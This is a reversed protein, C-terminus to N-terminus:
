CPRDIGTLLTALEGADLKYRLTVRWGSPSVLEVGDVVVASRDDSPADGQDDVPQAGPRLNVSVFPPLPVHKRRRASRSALTGVPIGSRRSLQALSTGLQDREALLADIEGADRRIRLPLRTM